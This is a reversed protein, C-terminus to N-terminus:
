GPPSCLFYTRDPLYWPRSELIHFGREHLMRYLSEPTPWFSRPNGWSSMNTDAVEAYWRGAYGKEVVEDSLEPRPRTAVHTDLLLPTGACRDLLRLQDDLTLHYFLGLCLVLDFGEVEFDRVDGQIWTVRRDDRFRAVRADVATVDWGFDAARVSHLGHGAGLDVLRKPEFLRLIREFIDQRRENMGM